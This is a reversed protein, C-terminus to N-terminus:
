RVSRLNLFSAFNDDSVEPGADMAVEEEIAVAVQGNSDEARSNAQRGSMLSPLMRGIECIDAYTFWM